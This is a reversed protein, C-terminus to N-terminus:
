DDQLDSVITVDDIDCGVKVTEKRKGGEEKKMITMANKDEGVRSGYIAFAETFHFSEERYGDFVAAIAFASSNRENNSM